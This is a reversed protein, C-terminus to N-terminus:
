LSFSGKLEMRGTLDFVPKSRDIESNFFAQASKDFLKSIPQAIIWADVGLDPGIESLDRLTRENSEFVDFEIVRHGDRELKSALKVSMSERLDPVDAKYSLGILGFVLSESSHHIMGLKTKIWNAIFTPQNENSSLASVILDIQPGGSGQLHSTLYAPDVPICHGGAGLGPEFKMFGFPKTSALKLVEGASIGMADCARAFENVLAINVLRFSNEFLKTAEAVMTTTAEVVDKFLPRYFDAVKALSLDSIGAVIKPTAYIEKSSQGPNIREPSYGLFYDVDLVRGGDDLIPRVVEETTGPSTTSELIVVAGQKINSSISISAQVIHGLYPKGEKLPTPVCIVVVDADNLLKGNTSFIFDPQEPGSDSLADRIYSEAHSAKSPDVDFAVVKHGVQLCKLALPLGVYGIGVVAVTLREM